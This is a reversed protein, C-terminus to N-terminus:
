RGVGDLPNSQMLLIDVHFAATNTLPFAADVVATVSLTMIEDDVELIMGMTRTSGSFIDLTM